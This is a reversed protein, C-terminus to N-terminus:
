YSSYFIVKNMGRHRKKMLTKLERSLRSWWRRWGVEERSSGVDNDEKWLVITLGEIEEMGKNQFINTKIGWAFWRGRNSEGEYEEEWHFHIRICVVVGCNGVGGYGWGSNRGEFRLEINELNCFDRASHIWIM